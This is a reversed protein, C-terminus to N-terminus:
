MCQSKLIISLSLLIGKKFYECVQSFIRIIKLPTRANSQKSQVRGRSSCLSCSSYLILIARSGWHCKDSHSPPKLGTSCRLFKNKTFIVSFPLSFPTNIFHSLHQWLHRRCTLASSDKCRSNRCPPARAVSPVKTPPSKHVGGASRQIDCIM